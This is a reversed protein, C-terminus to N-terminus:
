RISIENRSSNMLHPFNLMMLDCPSLVRAKFWVRDDIILTILSVPTQFVDTM